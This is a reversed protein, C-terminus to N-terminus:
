LRDQRATYTKMMPCSVVHIHLIYYIICTSVIWTRFVEEVGEQGDTCSHLALACLQRITLLCQDVLSRLSGTTRSMVQTIINPFRSRCLQTASQVIDINDRVRM